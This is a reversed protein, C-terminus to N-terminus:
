AVGQPQVESNSFQQSEENVSDDLILALHELAHKLILSLIYFLDCHYSMFLGVIM